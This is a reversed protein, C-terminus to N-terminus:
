MDQKNNENHCTEDQYKCSLRKRPGPYPIGPKTYRMKDSDAYHDGLGPEANDAWECAPFHRYARPGTIGNVGTREYRM